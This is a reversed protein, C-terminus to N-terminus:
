AVLCCDKARLRMALGLLTPFYITNETLTASATNLLVIMISRPLTILGLIVVKDKVVSLGCYM